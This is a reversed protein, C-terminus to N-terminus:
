YYEITENRQKQVKPSMFPKIDDFVFYKNDGLKNMKSNKPSVLKPSDNISSKWAGM